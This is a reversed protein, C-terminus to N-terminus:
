LSDRDSLHKGLGVIQHDSLLWGISNRRPRRHPVM